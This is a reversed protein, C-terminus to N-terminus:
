GWRARRPLPKFPSPAAFLANVGIRRPTSDITEMVFVVFHLRTSALGPEQGQHETCSRRAAGSRHAAPEPQAQRTPPIQAMAPYSCWRTAPKASHFAKLAFLKEASSNASIVAAM